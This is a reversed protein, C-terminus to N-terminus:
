TALRGTQDPPRRSSSSCICHRACAFSNLLCGDIHLFALRQKSAASHFAAVSTFIRNAPPFQDPWAGPACLPQRIRGGNHRFSRATDPLASVLPPHAKPAACRMRQWAPNNSSSIHNGAARGAASLKLRANASLSKASIFAHSTLGASDTTFFYSATM